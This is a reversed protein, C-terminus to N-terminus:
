ARNRRLEITVYPALVVIMTLMLVIACAAAVGAQSRPFMDDYILLAPMDTAFGPGGGTMAVVLDFTRAVVFSLLLVATLAYSRLMPLVVHLYARWLPIGEVRTAQWIQPDVGRLGALFLAMVLGCIHWAGAGVVTYIATPERVLADFRFGSWGLAQIARELGLGPNLIWQWILGTVLWSVSLPYLFVMRLLPRTRRGLRDIAIALLLGALTAAGIFLAGFVFLNGFSQWFRQDELLRAYNRFGVFAYRPLLRTATFSIVATWLIFGYFGVGLILGGPLLALIPAFTRRM